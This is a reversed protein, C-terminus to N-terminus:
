ASVKAYVEGIGKLWEVDGAKAKSHVKRLFEVTKPEYCPESPDDIPFVAEVEIQVVIPPAHIWRTHRTRKGKFNM